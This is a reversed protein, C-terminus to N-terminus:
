TSGRSPIWGAAPSRHRLASMTFSARRVIQFVLSQLEPPEVRRYIFHTMWGDGLQRYADVMCKVAALVRADSASEGERSIADWVVQFAGRRLYMEGEGFCHSQPIINATPKTDHFAAFWGARLAALLNM